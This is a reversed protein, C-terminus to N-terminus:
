LPGRTSIWMTRFAVKQRLSHILHHYVWTGHHPHCLPSGMTAGHRGMPCTGLAVKGMAYATHRAYPAMVDLLYGPVWAGEPMTPDM